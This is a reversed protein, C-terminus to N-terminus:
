DSGHSVSIMAQTTHSQGPQLMIADSGVNATEICVMGTWEDDGFDPMRRSKDIWPNWVVTSRSGSKGVTIKRNLGPDHLVATEVSNRYIRDTEQGFRIVAGAAEREEVQPVRDVYRVGELGSIAIQQIEAVHFYTHLADEFPQPAAATPPLKTTLTLILDAGFLVRYSLLFPDVSTQLRVEIAGDDCRRVNTLTWQRTRALGHAPQSSDTPHPGFWPFCIPVGGRIPRADEFWSARSMWLVPDHGAPKWASVHAGHLYVEGSVIDSQVVLKQLGHSDTQLHYGQSNTNM